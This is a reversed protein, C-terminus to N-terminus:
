DIRLLQAVSWLKITGDESGTAIQKGDPSFALTTIDGTHGEGIGLGHGDDASWLKVIRRMQISALMTGDPSFCLHQTWCGCKWHFLKAQKKLDWMELDYQSHTALRQGDPSIAFDMSGESHIECMQKLTSLNWIRSIKDECNIGVLKGDLSLSLERDFFQSLSIAGRSRGSQADWVSIFHHNLQPVALTQSNATFLAYKPDSYIGNGPIDALREGTALNWLAFKQADEYTVVRAADPSVGVPLGQIRVHNLDDVGALKGNQLHFIKRGKGWVLLTGDPQFILGFPPLSDIKLSATEQPPYPLAAAPSEVLELINRVVRPLALRDYFRTSWKDDVRCSFILKQEVPVFEVGAPIKKLLSNLRTLEAASLKYPYPSGSRRDHDYNVEYGQVSGDTEIQRHDAQTADEDLFTVALLLKSGPNNGSEHPGMAANYADQNVPRNKLRSLASSKEVASRYWEEALRNDQPVGRGQRYLVGLSKEAARNGQEAARNFWKVAESNDQPTGLGDRYMVGLQFQAEAVGQEAAHKFAAFAQQNRDGLVLLLEPVASKAAPGANGFARAADERVTSDGDYLDAVLSQIGDNVTESGIKGLAEAATQRIERDPCNLLEKLVPDASKASPGIQGLADIAAWKGGKGAKLYELIASVVEESHGHQALHSVAYGSNIQAGSDNDDFTKILAPLAREAGPWDTLFARAANSRVEGNSDGLAKILAPVADESGPGISEIAQVANERVEDDSDGAAVILAPIAKKAEERMNRLAAAALVRVDSSNDKLAVTLQKVAPKAKGLLWGLAEAAWRREKMDSSKLQEILRPVDNVVQPAIQKLAKIASERVYGNDDRALNTLPETASEALKGMSGLATASYERVNADKDSLARILAPIAPVAQEGLDELNSAGHQRIDPNKDQLERIHGAIADDPVTESDSHAVCQGVIAIVLLGAVIKAAPKM